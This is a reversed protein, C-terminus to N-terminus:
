SRGTRLEAPRAAMGRTEGPRRRWLWAWRWGGARTVSDRHAEIATDDAQRIDALRGQEVGDGVRGGGRGGVVREAGDLRVDPPHRHRVRPQVRQRLDALRGLDHRRLELDLVNGPQHATGGLAFPQAVLEQPRDALDVRHQLHQAAELIAVDGMDLAIDVRQAVGLQHLGLQQQGIQLAQLPLLVAQDLPRAALVLIGLGPQLQQVPDQRLELGPLLGARQLQVLFAPGQQLAEVQEGGLGHEVDAVHVFAEAAAPLASVAM